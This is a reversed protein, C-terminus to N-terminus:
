QGLVVPYLKTGQRNDTVFSVKNRCAAPSVPWLGRGTGTPTERRVDKDKM